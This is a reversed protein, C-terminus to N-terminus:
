VEGKKVPHNRGYWWAYLILLTFLVIAGIVMSKFTSEYEEDMDLPNPNKQEQDFFLQVNLNVKIAILLKCLSSM